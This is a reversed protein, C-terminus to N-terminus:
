SEHSMGIYRLLHRQADRDLKLFKNYCDQCFCAQDHGRPLTDIPEVKLEPFFVVINAVGEFIEGCQECKHIM